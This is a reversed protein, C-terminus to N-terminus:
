DSLNTSPARTSCTTVASRGRPGVTALTGGIVLRVNDCGARSATQTPGIKARNIACKADAVNTSFLEGRSDLEAIVDGDPLVSQSTGYPTPGSSVIFVSAGVADLLATRSSTRSGHHGAVLVQAAIGSACCTVLVEKVSGPSPATTLSDRGVAEAGGLGYRSLPVVTNSTFSNVACKSFLSVSQETELQQIHLLPCALDDFTGRFSDQLVNCPCLKIPASPPVRVGM